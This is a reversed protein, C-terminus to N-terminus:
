NVFEWNTVLIKSVCQLAHRQIEPDEHDILAMIQDKAGLHKIVAKGNPYFRVQAPFPHNSTPTGLARAHWFFVIM